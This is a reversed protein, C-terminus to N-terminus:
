SGNGMTKMLSVRVFATSLGPGPPFLEYIRRLLRKRKTESCFFRSSRSKRNKARDKVRTGREKSRFRVSVNAGCALARIACRKQRSTSPLRECQKWPSLARRSNCEMEIKTTKPLQTLWYRFNLWTKKLTLRKYVMSKPRPAIPM